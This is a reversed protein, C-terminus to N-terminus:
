NLGHLLSHLVKCLSVLTEIRIDFVEKKDKPAENMEVEVVVNSAPLKNFEDSFSKINNFWRQLNEYNSTNKQKVANFVLIDSQSPEFGAIYSHSLLHKDLFALGENTSLDPIKM